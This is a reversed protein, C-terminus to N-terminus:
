MEFLNKWEPCNDDLYRKIGRGKIKRELKLAETRSDVEFLWVKIWPIGPKTTKVMAQNHRALRLEFNDTQGCYFRKVSPSYLIYVVFMFFLQRLVAIQKDAQGTFNRVM